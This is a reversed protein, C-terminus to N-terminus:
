MKPINLEIPLGEVPFSAAPLLNQRAAVAKEFVWHMVDASSYRTIEDYAREVIELREQEHDLYYCIKDAIEDIPSQVLHQGPQFSTHPLTPETVVLAGKPMALLYRMSNDDWWNRLINLVIKTRSLLADRKKGFVYQNEIGDIVMLEIGRKRLDERVRNLIRKRRDSGAKGLWLVPIDREQRFDVQPDRPYCLPLVLPDFGRADLFEANWKSAIALVSLIGESRMWHMDGYYIFRHAKIWSLPYRSRVEWEGSPGQQYSLRGVLSRAQGARYRLWEPLGPHPLPEVMLYVFAPRTAAPCAILQNALPVLSGYPGRAFVVDLNAPLKHNYPFSVVEFGLYEFLQQLNLVGKFNDWYLLGVRLGKLDMRDSANRLLRIYDEM